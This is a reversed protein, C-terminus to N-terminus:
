PKRAVRWATLGALLAAVLALAGPEPVPTPASEGSAAPAGVTPAAFIAAANAGITLNTGDLIANPTTVILKGATVITGGNYTNTGSLVLTGTGTKMLAMGSGSISGSDTIKMAGTDFAITNTNFAGNGPVLQINLGITQNTGSQNLVDGSLQIANGELDYAAGAADFFIGYFLSNATLNNNTTEHSGAVLPGFRLWHGAAPTTGSWNGASNWNNNAGGGNWILTSPTAVYTYGEDDFVSYGSSSSVAIRGAAILANLTSEWSGGVHQWRFIWAPGSATGATLQLMSTNDINLNGASTGYFTMGTLQGNPRELALVANTAINIQSNVSSGNARLPVSGDGIYLYTAVAPGPNTVTVPVGGYWGLYIYPATIGHGGMDLTSGTDQLSLYYDLNMDAGLTLKSGSQVDVAHTVNGTATTALLSNSQLQLYSVSNAGLTSGGVNYLHFNTASDALNLSFPQDAVYLNTTTLPGRNVLSPVGSGSWGLYIYSANLKHGGMDLTSGTDQLNFYYGLNMDAGMTLKSGSEVDVQYTVNATNATNLLSNAQLTLNYVSNAALTSGAVNYLTVKAASDSPALSFPQDAVYLNTTTLPGRNVLSPVGSGYWGLYIYPATIGHGGMDLTSGTDQLNFYYGLNMDAGMTLKSGSQVEVLYTVNATNTTNLRSNSQLTLNSVLNAALTSGAVDYLILNTVSDAPALSFPQYAVYLNTAALPGRNVITPVGTGDWGLLITNAATIKHGGMDLTSGTDQLNFQNGLVMDTGLTLKSGTDVSVSSTVAGTGSVNMVTNNDLQLYAVSNGALTSASVSNLYLNAVSDSASLSFPQGTVYLYSATMPGRNVLSPVGGNYGLEIQYATLKHGAMNLTSGTDQLNLLNSLVMDAGLTLVSSSTIGVTAAISGTSTTTLTSGNNLIVYDVTSGLSGGSVDSYYLNAISDAPLISFPENSVYLNPTALPGRNVLTPTGNGYYGILIANAASLTHGGMDLTSGSDQLNLQNDLVM